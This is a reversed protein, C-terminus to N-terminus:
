DLPMGLYNGHRIDVAYGMAEMDARLADRDTLAHDMEIFLIPRCRAITERAGNLVRAEFGEVDVKIFSVAHGCLVDDLRVVRVTAMPADPQEHHPVALSIGGFNTGQDIDLEPIQITGVADGAAANILWVNFICSERASKAILDHCCRQPEIAIVQHAYQALPLTWCGFNAGVDVAAAKPREDLLACIESIFEDEPSAGTNKLWWYQGRDTDPVFM